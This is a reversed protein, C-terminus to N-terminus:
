DIYTKENNENKKLLCQFVFSGARIVLGDSIYTEENALIWTGNSSPKSGNGDEIYWNNYQFKIRFNLSFYLYYFFM